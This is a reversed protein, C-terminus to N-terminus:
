PKRLERLPQLAPQKQWLQYPTESKLLTVNKKFNVKSNQISKPLKDTHRWILRRGLIETNWSPARQYTCPFNTLLTKMQTAKKSTCAARQLKSSSCSFPFRWAQLGRLTLADDSLCLAKKVCGKLDLAKPCPPQKFSRWPFHLTSRFGHIAVARSRRILSSYPDADQKTWLGPHGPKRHNPGMM